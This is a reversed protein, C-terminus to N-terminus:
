RLKLKSIDFDPHFRDLDVLKPIGNVRGKESFQWINYHGKGRIVPPKDGYRGIMLYYDNFDPACYSNYSRNTGYIIPRRGYLDKLMNCFLLISDKNVNEEVDVMPILDQNKRKATNTFNIFQARISSTNRLFHYSGVLICNAKAGKVNEDYRKDQYTAGETAKVYVFLINKDKAVESWSIKGQYNSVDIGQYVDDGKTAVAVTDSGNLIGVREHLCVICAIGSGCFAGLLFVLIYRVMYHYSEHEVPVVEYSKNIPTLNLSKVLM